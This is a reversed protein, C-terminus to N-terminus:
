GSFSNPAQGVAGTRARFLSGAEPEAEESIGRAASTVYLDRGDSGGFACSSTQSVPFRVMGRESGDPAFHGVRAGGWFAVWLDGNADVTMGDPFGVSADAEILTRRNTIAGDDLDFDFVDVRRTPSDIYYMLRDDPSWDIGNSISVSDVMVQVGLDPDLRYLKGLGAPAAEDYAMTGAWFRGHRDCKGDNMRMSPDDAGVEALVTQSGDAELSRFGDAAAMVLGGSARVAVAGVDIGVDTCDNRGNAPDFRHVASGTIDVWLLTETGPDWLPGEGVEARTRVVLESEM